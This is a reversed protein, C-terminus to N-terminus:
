IVRRCHGQQFIYLWSRIHFRVLYYAGTLVIISSGVRANARLEFSMKDERECCLIRKQKAKKKKENEATKM